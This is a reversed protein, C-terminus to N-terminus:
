NGADPRGQPVRGRQEDGGGCLTTQQEQERVALRVVVVAVLPPVPHGVDPLGHALRVTLVHVHVGEGDVVVCAEVERRHEPAPTMVEQAVRAREGAGHALDQHLGM